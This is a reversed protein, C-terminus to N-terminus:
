ELGHALNYEKVLESTYPLDSASMWLAKSLNYGAFAVLYQCFGRRIWYGVISDVKYEVEGDVLIPAPADQGDGGSYFPKLLSVHFVDHIHKLAAPLQLQYAQSVVKQVM